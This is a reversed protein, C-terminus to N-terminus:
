PRDERELAPSGTLVDAMFNPNVDPRHNPGFMFVYILALAAVKLTLLVAIERGLSHRLM